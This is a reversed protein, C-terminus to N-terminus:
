VVAGAFNQVSEVNSYLCCCFRCLTETGSKTPVVVMDSARDEGLSSSLTNHEGVGM